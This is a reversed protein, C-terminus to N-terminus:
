EPINHLRYLLRSAIGKVSVEKKSQKDILWSLKYTANVTEVLVM